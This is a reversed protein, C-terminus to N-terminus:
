NLTAAKQEDAEALATKGLKRYAKARSTYVDKMDPVLEIAKTYDAIADAVKDQSVKALGRNYYGDALNSKSDVNMAVYKDLDQVSLAYLKQRYYITGRNYFAESETPDLEIVKTFDAIASPNNKQQMYAYGRSFYGSALKPDLQIAKTADAVALDLLNLNAYSTGRNKYFYARPFLEIARNFDQIAIENKGLKQRAWGRLNYADARYEPKPEDSAIYTDLPAISTAIDGKNQLATALNYHAEVDKTGKSIQDRYYNVQCDYDSKGCPNQGYAVVVAGFLYGALLVITLFNIKKM